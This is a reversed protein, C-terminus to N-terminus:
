LEWGLAAEFTVLAGEGPTADDVDRDEEGEDGPEEAEEDEVGDEGEVVLCAVEVDPYVSSAM